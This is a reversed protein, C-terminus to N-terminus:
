RREEDDHYLSDKQRPMPISDESRIEIPPVSDTSIKSPLIPKKLFNPAIEPNATFLCALLVLSLAFLVMLLKLLLLIVRSFISPSKKIELEFLEIDKSGIERGTSAEKDWFSWSTCTVISNDDSRYESFHMRKNLKYNRSRSCSYITASGDNSLRYEKQPNEQQLSTAGNPSLSVAVKNHFVVSSFPIQTHLVFLCNGDTDEHVGLWKEEDTDDHIQYEAWLFKDQLPLHKDQFFVVSATIKYVTGCISIKQGETLESMEKFKFVHNQLANDGNPNTIDSPDEAPTNPILVDDAKIEHGYVYYEVGNIRKYSVLLGNNKSYDYYEIKDGQKLHSEGCVFIVTAILSLTKYTGAYSDGYTSFGTEEQPSTDTRSLLKCKSRRSDRDVALWFQVGADTEMRFEKCFGHEKKYEIVSKVCYSVGEILLLDQPKIRYLDLSM